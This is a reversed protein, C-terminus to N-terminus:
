EFSVTIKIPQKNEININNNLIVPKKSQEYNYKNSKITKCIKKQKKEKKNNKKNMDDYVNDKIKLLYDYIRKSLFWKFFNLQGITTIICTDKMFFPIRDGRSFPDFFNKSFKKLQNKYDFHINFLSEKGNEIIKYSSKNNKTYKTVFHDILRISIPQSKFDSGSIINIFKSSMEDNDYFEENGKLKISEHSNLQIVKYLEINQKRAETLENNNKIEFSRYIPIQQREEEQSPSETTNKLTECPSM